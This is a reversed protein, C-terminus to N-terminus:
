FSVRATAKVTLPDGLTLAGGLASAWYSKDAVNEVALLFTTAKGGIRTEYRAGVDFRTWGPISQLNAQDFYQKSLYYVGANLYLGPVAGIRWDVWANATWKPVGPVQKGDTAASGTDTQEANLYMLGSVLRLDPLVQGSALLEIGRHRQDGLEVWYGAGNLGQLPKRMDFVAATLLLGGTELKAGIEYQDTVLPAMSAGNNAAYNPATGGPELGQAYNAYVLSAPTPKWLLAVAPSFRSVSQGPVKSGDPAYNDISAQRGGLMVSWQETLGIIDNVFVGTTRSKGLYPLIDIPQPAPQPQDNSAYLSGPLVGALVYSSYSKDEAGSVGLTLDHQVAGTEFKGRVVAQGAQVKTRYSEQGAFLAIDGAASTIVGYRTDMTGDYPRNNQGGGYQVTLTWDPAFAWDGRLWGIRTNQDFTSWSTGLNRRADPASPIPVPNGLADSAGVFFPQLGDFNNDVYYLGGSLTFERTIRWDGALSAMGQRWATDDVATDGDKFVGNFRLGFQQDDGFRQGLDAQLGFQSKSAYTLGVDAVPTNGAQKPIYNLAGGLSSSGFLFTTPGKLIDVRDFAQLGIRGDNLLTGLALGDFLFGGSGLSFGRLTAFSVVVNGVQASPDNKLFDGLYSAQQNVILDQTIVNVSFPTSTLPLDGLVGTSAADARYVEAPKGQVIVSQPVDGGAAATQAWATGSAAGAAASLAALTALRASRPRHKTAVKM